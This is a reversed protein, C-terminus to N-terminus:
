SIRAASRRMAGAELEAEILVRWAGSVAAVSCSQRIYDRGAEVHKARLADDMLYSVFGDGFGNFWGMGEFQRYSPIPDAAVALGENLATAVRNGSKCRTFANDRVPILAVDHLRLTALFTTRDWAVYRTPIMWAAFETEFKRPHNSIVALMVPRKGHARELQQRLASLDTMGGEAFGVGHNGFWVLPLYGRLRWYVVWARHQLYRWKAPFRNPNLHRRAFSEGPMLDDACEVADGIVSTPQSFGEARTIEALTETACVLHDAQSLLSRLRDVQRGWASDNTPNFFQNDCNDVVVRIGRAKMRNIQKLFDDPALSNQNTNFVSWAQVIVSDYIPERSPDYLEVEVGERILQNLPTLCRM